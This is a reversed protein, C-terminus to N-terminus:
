CKDKTLGLLLVKQSERIKINNINVIAPLRSGKGPIM